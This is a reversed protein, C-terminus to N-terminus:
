KTLLKFTGVLNMSQFEGFCKLKDCCDGEEKVVTCNRDKPMQVDDCTIQYCEIVPASTDNRCYCTEYCHFGEQLEDKLYIKPDIEEGQKFLHENFRCSWKDEDEITPSTTTENARGQDYPPLTPRQVTSAKLPEQTTPEEECLYQPCCENEKKVAKCNENAPKDCM